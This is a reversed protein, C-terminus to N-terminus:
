IIKYKALHKLEERVECIPDIYKNYFKLMKKCRYYVYGKHVKIRAVGSAIAAQAVSEAETAMVRPDTPSTIIYDEELEEDTILDSIAHAAAMKMKENIETARVDLAGRFIGPFGIVNNIQNAYDSRGTAVIRAGAEKAKEPMIEPVPNACAFVIPHDAMSKIMDVSVINPASVGLFVDAGKMADKLSGNFNEKNTIKAIEEKAFNMNEKRGEYIAGARDCVIIDRAGASLYFKACCIGAAGAGSIVIKVEEMKNGVLKLANILGALTVVATGHQDDHFVPLKLEKRLRREIYFCRPSSIDELNIGGFSPEIMKIIEVIKDPDKTNLCIPFADVGGLAKFLICKGEMVPLAAEPTIEGLGLVASGDTVVAVMNGKTTYKWIDSPNKLIQLSPEAVGPTYGLSLDYFNRVRTKSIIEIKGNGPYNHTHYELSDKKLHKRQEETLKEQSVKEKM